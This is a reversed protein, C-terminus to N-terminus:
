NLVAAVIDSLGFVAITGGTRTFVGWATVNQKTLANQVASLLTGAGGMILTSKISTSIADKPQYVVAEQRAPVVNPM